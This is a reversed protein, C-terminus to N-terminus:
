AHPDENIKKAAGGGQTVVNGVVAQGGSINVHQVTVKQEGNRRLRMLAEITEHQLRLLKIANNLDPDRHCRMDATEARQLYQMGQFHLVALQACFMGELANTPKLDDMIEFALATKCDDPFGPSAKVIRRVLDFALIIQSTGMKKRILERKEPSLADIQELLGGKQILAVTKNKEVKKKKKRTKNKSM